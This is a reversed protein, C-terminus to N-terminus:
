PKGMSRDMLDATHLSLFRYWITSRMTKQEEKDSSIDTPDWYAVAQLRYTQPFHTDIDGEFEKEVCFAKM